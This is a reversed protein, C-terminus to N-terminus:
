RSALEVIETKIENRETADRDHLVVYTYYGVGGDFKETAGALLL